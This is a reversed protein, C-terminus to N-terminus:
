KAPALDPRHLWGVIWLVAAAILGLDQPVGLLFAASGGVLSWALPIAVLLWRSPAHALLLFGLTFITTPCPAVGFLPTEPYPHTFILGLLPYVVFAYAILATALWGRLGPQPTFRVRGRIVGEVLFALAALLFLAGFLYAASNIAAFYTWHYGVGMISWFVVLVASIARDTWPRRRVLLVIALFGLAAAVVQFPWIAMNYAAFVQLFESQSFPLAM